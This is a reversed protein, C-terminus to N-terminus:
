LHILDNEYTTMSNITIKFIDLEFSGIEGSSTIIDSLQTIINFSQQTLKLADFEILIDNNPTNHKILKLRKKLDFSTNQQEEEYYAAENIGLEDDTYLTSCWPELISMLQLNCNYAIFGINYKHPINPLGNIDSKITTGWKRIFNKNSNYEIKKSDNKHEESFRSTKSVFHYCLSDLSTILDVKLLKLRILLDDDECFMPSYLNHMGGISLYLERNQAIFFASGYITKNKNDLQVQKAYIELDKFKVSDFDLGFDKIIKGPRVHSSFIPPEITTYTVAIKKDLHKIINELWNDLIVIDNHCFVIYDKTAIEACKNFTDSFTKKENSYYYNLNKDSLSDLWEHTGDNSGYSVFCLEENPYIERFRKYFKQSYEINNKLGVLISINM